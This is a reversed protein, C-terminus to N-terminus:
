DIMQLLMRVVIFQTIYGLIYEGSVRYSVFAKEYLKDLLPVLARSARLILADIDTQSM